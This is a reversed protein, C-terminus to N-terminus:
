PVVESVKEAVITRVDIGNVGFNFHKSCDRQCIGVLRKEYVFVRFENEHVLDYHKRLMLVNGSPKMAEVVRRSAKLLEFIMDASCCCLDNNLWTGDVPAKGNFKIFAGKETYEKEILGTMTTRLESVAKKYQEVNEEGCKLAEPKEIGDANLYLKVFIDQM